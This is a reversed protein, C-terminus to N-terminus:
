PSWSPTQLIVRQLSPLFSSPMQESQMQKKLNLAFNEMKFISLMSISGPVRLGYTLRADTLAPGQPTGTSPTAPTLTRHPNIKLVRFHLNCSILSRTVRKLSTM